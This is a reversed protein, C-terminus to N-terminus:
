RQRTRLEWWTAAAPGSLVIVALVVGVWVSPMLVAALVVVVLVQVVLRVAARSPQRSEPGPDDVAGGTDHRLEAAMRALVAKEQETLPRAPEPRTPDTTM